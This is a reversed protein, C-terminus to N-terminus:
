AARKDMSFRQAIPTQLRQRLRKVCDDFCLQLQVRQRGSLEVYKRPLSRSIKGLRINPSPDGIGPQGTTPTIKYDERLPARLNLFGELRRFVATTEELLEQHTVLLCRQPDNITAAIDILQMLRITYHDFAFAILEQTTEQQYQRRMAVISGLTAFPERVLFIYQIRQDILVSRSIVHQTGVIKDLVYRYELPNEGTHNRVSMLLKALDGRHRYNNHTEGFGVVDDSTSLLHCLLTSGSRMHGLIFLFKSRGALASPLLRLTNAQLALRGFERRLKSPADQPYPTYAGENEQLPISQM